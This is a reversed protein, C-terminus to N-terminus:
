ALSRLRSGPRRVHRELRKAVLGLAARRDDRKRHRAGIAIPALDHLELDLLRDGVRHAREDIEQDVLAAERDGLALPRGLLHGHLRPVHAQQELSKLLEAFVDRPGVHTRELRAVDRVHEDAPARKVRAFLHHRM